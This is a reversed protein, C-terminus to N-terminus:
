IFYKTSYSLSSLLNYLCPFIALSHLANQAVAGTKGMTKHSMM